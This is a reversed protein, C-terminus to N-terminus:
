HRSQRREALRRLASTLAEAEARNAWPPRVTEDVMAVADHLQGARVLQDVAHFIGELAPSPEPLPLQNAESPMLELVGGGYSRGALEANLLTWSNMFSVCHRRGLAASRWTVRHISDTATGRWALHVLRPMDGSQRFLVADCERLSPVAYWPERIRCKYRQSVQRQEGERLYSRLAPPLERPPQNAKLVFGPRNRALLRRFDEAGFAIGKLDKTTALIPMLHRPTFRKAQDQNVLFFANDGTVVGVEVRGYASFPQWAMRDRWRGVLSRASAPLFLHTWKASWDWPAAQDLADFNGQELNKFSLTLLGQPGTEEHDCLLLLVAQQVEPFVGTEPLCVIVRRFQRLLFGRLEGAYGVALLEEPIVMALRGGPALLRCSLALFPAWTSMLRSPSLGLKAMESFASARSEEAFLHSRVFPPNGLVVDVQPPRRVWHFFDGCQAGTARATEADIDVGLCVPRRSGLYGLRTRAAALFVGDGSSPDLVRDASSRIAWRTLAAAIRPPTYVAGRTKQAAQNVRYRSVPARRAAGRAKAPALRSSM